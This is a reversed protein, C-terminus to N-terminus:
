WYTTRYTIRLFGVQALGLCSSNTPNCTNLSRQQLLSFLPKHRNSWGRGAQGAQGAQGAKLGKVQRLADREKGVQGGAWRGVRRGDAM